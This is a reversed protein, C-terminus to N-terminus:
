KRKNSRDHGRAPGRRNIRDLRQPTLLRARLISSYGEREERIAQEAGGLERYVDKFIGELQRLKAYISETDSVNSM